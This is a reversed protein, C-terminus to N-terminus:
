KPKGSDKDTPKPAQELKEGPKAPEAPAKPPATDAPKPPAKSDPMPADTPKSPTKVEGTPTKADPTPVSGDAPKAPTKANPDTVPTAPAPTNPGKGDPGRPTTSPQTVPAPPTAPSPTTKPTTSISVDKPREYLTAVGYITLDVLNATQQDSTLSQEGPTGPPAASMGPAGPGRPGGPAPTAVGVGGVGGSTAGASPGRPGFLGPRSGSSSGVAPSRSDSGRPGSPAPTNSPTDSGTNGPLNYVRMWHVQTVQFRLKSNSLAVLVDPISTQDMTMVITIPLRRVQDTVDIYRKKNLGNPTLEGAASTGGMGPMGPMGPTTPMGPAGPMGPMGSGKGSGLQNGSDAPKTDTEKEFAKVTKFTPDFKRHGPNKGLALEKLRKIPVSRQNLVQEVKRIGTPLQNINVKVDKEIVQDAALADIPITVLVPRAAETESPNPSVWVNLDMQYIVQRRGSINKMKVHFTYDRDKRDLSIDLEYWRSQFRKAFAEAPRMTTPPLTEGKPVPVAEFVAVAQNAQHLVNLVERQVCMDELSLWVEDYTPRNTASWAVPTLVAKWGGQYDTPKIIDAMEEYENLYVNEETYAFADDRNIDMGFDPYKKGMTYRMDGPWSILGKQKDYMETWLEGRKKGLLDKQDDLAAIFQRSIANNNSKLDSETAKIKKEKAEADAGVVTPILILLVLAFIGFVGLLIWFHNKILTEKDTKM